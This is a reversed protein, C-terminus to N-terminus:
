KLIKKIKDSPNIIRGLKNIEQKSLLVYKSGDKQGNITTEKEQKNSALNKIDLQKVLAITKDDDNIFAFYGNEKYEFEKGTSDVTQISYNKTHANKSSNRKVDITVNSISKNGDEDEFGKSAKLDIHKFDEDYTGNEIKWGENELAAKVFPEDENKARDYLNPQHYAEYLYTRIDKM